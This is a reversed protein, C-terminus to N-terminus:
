RRAEERGFGDEVVTSRRGEEDLYRGIDPYPQGPYPWGLPPALAEFVTVEVPRPGADGIAAAPRSGDQYPSLAILVVLDIEAFLTVHDGAMADSGVHRVQRGDAEIAVKQFFCAEDKISSPDHGGARMLGALQEWASPVGSPGGSFRWDAPTGWGGFVPHHWGPSTGGPGRPVAVTDELVTMLPRYRAMTGFMRSFRSLWLGEILITHQAYYREDPDAANFPFVHVIQAGELLRLRVAQGASLHCALGGTDALVTSSDERWRDRRGLLDTYFDKHFPM